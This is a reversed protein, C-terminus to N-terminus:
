VTVPHVKRGERKKVLCRKCYYCITENKRDRMLNTYLPVFAFTRAIVLIYRVILVNLETSYVEENDTWLTSNTNPTIVYEYIIVYLGYFLVIYETMHCWVSMKVMKTVCISITTLALTLLSLSSFAILGFAEIGNNLGKSISVSNILLNVLLLIAYITFLIVNWFIVCCNNMIRHRHLLTTTYSTNSVM